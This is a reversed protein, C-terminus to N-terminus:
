TTGYVVKTVVIVQRGLKKIILGVLRVLKVFKNQCPVRRTESLEDTRWWSNIWQVSLLPIHWVPKYVSPVDQDQKFASLLGTHCIGNSLTYQILEQQHVSSSDSVRLTEHWFLNTFNTCRTPKIIFFNTVICPWMFTFNQRGLNTCEQELLVHTGFSNIIQLYQIFMKIWKGERHAWRM